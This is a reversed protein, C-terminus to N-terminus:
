CFHKLVYELAQEKTTIKKELALDEVTKLIETFEPGPSLGLGILDKGDILKPLWGGAQSRLDRLRSECFEHYILNGDSSMAECWHFQLLFEFGPHSIWRSLTAERMLFVEKFKTREELIWQLSEFQANSLKMRQMLSGAIAQPHGKQDRTLAAWGLIASKPEGLAKIKQFLRVLGEWHAAEIEPFLIAGLETEVLYQAAIDPAAGIWMRELEDRVREGSIRKILKARNKISRLTENEIEFGVQAAFRIARLLRLADEQFRQPASGIARIKKDRIDEFGSVYDLIRNTKLDYFFGNVTFDRRKADEEPNSFEVSEPHRSDIYTGDKRFTAVEYGEVQMVGFAKGIPNASPFLELIQDPTASTVIDIDKPTRGLLHDRVCGGVCYSVYSAGSLKQLISKAKEPILLPRDIPIWKM